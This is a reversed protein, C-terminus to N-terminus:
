AWCQHVALRVARPSVAVLADLRAHADEVLFGLSKEYARKEERLAQRRAELDDVGGNSKIGIKELLTM